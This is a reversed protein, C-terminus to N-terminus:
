RVIVVVRRNRPEAVGDPTVIAPNGKGHSSVSILEPPVGQQLLLTKVKDARDLALADNLQDSGTADTHGSVSVRVASRRAVAAAIAPIHPLSDSSLETSGTEFMLTFAEPPPPEIALADGFTRQIQEPSLPSVETPAISAGRTRTMEGARSLVQRGGETSVEVRGVHGDPDPVLVISQSACGGLTMLTLWVLSRIRTNSGHAM